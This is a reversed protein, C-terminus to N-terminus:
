DGKEKKKEKDSLARGEQRAINEAVFAPWGIRALRQISRLTLAFSAGSHGVSDKLTTAIRMLEPESGFMFGGEPEADRLWIWADAATVAAYMERLMTATTTDTCFSFNGDPYAKAERAAIEELSLISVPDM